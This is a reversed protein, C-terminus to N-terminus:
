ISPLADLGTASLSTPASKEALREKNKQYNLYFKGGKNEFGLEKVSLVKLGLSVKARIPNLRPDFDEETVSLSSVLVPVVRQRSWVWLLLPGGPPAIELVGSAADTHSRELDKITPYVLTELAALQPHIGLEVADQHQDPSALQDIADIYAEVTFSETPPAGIKLADDGYSGEKRTIEFSRSLTEPNYQLVIVKRIAASKPDLVVLGAKFVPPSQPSSSM